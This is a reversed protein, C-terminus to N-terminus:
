RSQEVVYSIQYAVKTALKDIQSEKWKPINHANGVVTKINIHAPVYIGKGLAKGIEIGGTNIYTNGICEEKGWASDILVIIKEKCLQIENLIIKANKIHIPNDMTGLVQISPDKYYISQLKEGVRPGFSDYTIKNTGICVFVYSEM